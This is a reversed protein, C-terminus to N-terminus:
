SFKPGRYSALRWLELSVDTKNRVIRAAINAKNNDCLHKAIKEGALGHQSDGAESILYSTATRDVQAMVHVTIAGTRMHQGLWMGQPSTRQSGSCPNSNVLTDLIDTRLIMEKTYKGALHGNGSDTKRIGTRNTRKAAVKSSTNASRRRWRQLQKPRPSIENIDSEHTMPGRTHVSGWVVRASDGRRRVYWSRRVPTLLYPMREALKTEIRELSTEVSMLNQGMQDSKSEQKVADQKTRPSSESVSLEMTNIRAKLKKIEDGLSVLAKPNLDTNYYQLIILESTAGNSGLSNVKCNELTIEKIRREFEFIADACRSEFSRILLAQM